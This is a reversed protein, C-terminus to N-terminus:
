IDFINVNTLIPLPKIDNTGVSIPYYPPIIIDEHKLEIKTTDESNKVLTILTFLEISNLIEFLEKVHVSWKSKFLPYVDKRFENINKSKLSKHGHSIKEIVSNIKQKASLFKKNAINNYIIFQTYKDDLSSTFMGNSIKLRFANTSNSEEFFTNTYLQKFEDLICKLEESENNIKFEIRINESKIKTFGFEELDTIVDSITKYTKTSVIRTLFDLVNVTNICFEGNLIKLQEFSIIMYGLFNSLTESPNEFNELEFTINEIKVVNGIRCGTISLNSVTVIVEFNEKFLVKNFLDTLYPMYDPVVEKSTMVQRFQKYYSDYKSIEPTFKDIDYKYLLSALLIKLKNLDTTPLCEIIIIESM